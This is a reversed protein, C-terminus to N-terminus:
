TPARKDNRAFRGGQRSMLIIVPAIEATAAMAAIAFDAYSGPRPWPSIKNQKFEFSKEDGISRSIVSCFEKLQHCRGTVPYITSHDFLEVTM